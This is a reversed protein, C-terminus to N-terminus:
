LCQQRDRGLDVTEHGQGCVDAALAEKREFIQQHEVNGAQKGAVLELRMEFEAHQAVAIKLDLVFGFVEHAFEFDGQFAAAAAFDHAQGMGGTGGFFQFGHHHRFQAHARLVHDFDVPHDTDIVEGFQDDVRAGIQKPRLEGRANGFPDRVMVAVHKGRDAGLIHQQVVGVLREIHHDAEQGLGRAVGINDRDFLRKVACGAVARDDFGQALGCFVAFGDGGKNFEFGAKVLGGVDSLGAPEFTGTGMDNVAKDVQFGMCFNRGHHTALAVLQHCVGVVAGSIVVGDGCADIGIHGQKGAVLLQAAVGGLYEVVKRAIRLRVREVIERDRGDGEFRAQKGHDVGLCFM